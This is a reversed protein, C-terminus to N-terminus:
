EDKEGEGEGEAKNGGEREREGVGREGRFKLEKESAIETVLLHPQEPILLWAQHRSYPLLGWIKPQSRSLDAM